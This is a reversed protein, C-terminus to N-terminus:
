GVMVLVQKNKFFIKKFKFEKVMYIIIVFEKKIILIDYNGKNLFYLIILLILNYNNCDYFYIFGKVKEYVGIIKIFGQIYLVYFDFYLVIIYMFKIKVEDFMMEFNDYQEM